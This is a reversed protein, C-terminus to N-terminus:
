SNGGTTPDILNGDDDVPINWVQTVASSPMAQIAEAMVEIVQKGGDADAYNGSLSIEDALLNKTLYDNSSNHPEVPYKYYYYGSAKFWGEGCKFVPDVAVGGIHKGSINVRYTVLKVRIFAKIDSTNEVQISKKTNNKYDEVVNCSVHSPTFTNVVPGTQVSLYALTGGVTICLIMLLSLVLKVSKRLKRKSRHQKM